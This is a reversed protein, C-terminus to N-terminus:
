KAPTKELQQRVWVRSPDLALAKGFAQRLNELADSMAALPANAALRVVALLEGQRGEAVEDM